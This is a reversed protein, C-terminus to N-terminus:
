SRAQSKSVEPVVPRGFPAITVWRRSIEARQGVARIDIRGSGVVGYEIDGGGHDIAEAVGGFGGSLSALAEARDDVCAPVHVEGIDEFSDIREARDEDLDVAL